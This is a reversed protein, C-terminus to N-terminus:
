RHASEKEFYEFADIIDLYAGDFGADLIKKQYLGDNGTIIKQWDVDRYKVVYNGKWLPNKEALWSPKGTKWAGNWYYRYDEAGGISMYYIVLRKGGNRKTKLERVESEAYAKVFHFLDM